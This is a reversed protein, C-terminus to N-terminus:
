PIIIRPGGCVKVQPRALLGATLISAVLTSLVLVKVETTQSKAMVSLEQPTGGELFLSEMGFVAPNLFLLTCDETSHFSVAEANPDRDTITANAQWNKKDINIKVVECKTAVTNM